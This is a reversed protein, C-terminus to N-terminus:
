YQHHHILVPQQIYPHVDPLHLLSDQSHQSSPPIRQTASSSSQSSSSSSVTSSSEVSDSLQMHSRAIDATWSHITIPNTRLYHHLKLENAYRRAYRDSPSKPVDSMNQYQQKM